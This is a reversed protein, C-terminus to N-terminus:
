KLALDIIGGGLVKDLEYFVVSQGPTIARQPEDFKVEAASGGIPTLLARAEEPKYRIKAKIRLPGDIKERSILNVRSARLKKGYLDKEKGVIVTNSAANVSLVYLPHPAAIGMGRRQGVTFHIIGKHEGLIEGTTDKILGPVFAKPIRRSLFEPYKGEPVFCIEQSEERMAIPLGLRRAMERVEGKTFNGVPMLARALQGQTLSYLFYSQDKDKDKGKKLLYRGARRDFAVRAHHGTAVFDAEIKRARELLLAFKIQENCRICPNPTRGRSYEQMFDAIVTEEFERQFDAVYHPIGLKAAVEQADEVAKFGCCSRLEESRCVEEPLSFLKMTVGTVEHAKEVLLAAAVSSDVGGSMAVVVKRRAM